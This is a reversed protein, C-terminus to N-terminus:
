VRVRFGLGKVKYGPRKLLPRSGKPLKPLALCDQFNPEQAGQM